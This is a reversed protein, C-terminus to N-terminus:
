DFGVCIHSNEQGLSPNKNGTDLGKLKIITQNIRSLRFNDIKVTFKDAVRKKRSATTSRLLQPMINRKKNTVNERLDSHSELIVGNIDLEPM